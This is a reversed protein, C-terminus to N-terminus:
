CIKPLIKGINSLQVVSVPKGIILCGTPTPVVQPHPLILILARLDSIMDFSQWEHRFCRSIPSTRARKQPERPVPLDFIHSVKTPM